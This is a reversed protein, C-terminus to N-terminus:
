ARREEELIRVEVPERLTMEGPLVECDYALIKVGKASAERLVEGFTPHTEVNPTFYRVQKMQIVFLVYAEYGEDICAMLERIHKVGRETPADPFRVVGDEELTVGKVELFIRREPTELYFDFRSTGFTTEPRILSAQPFIQPLAEAAVKNPAQSDINVVRNGKKVAVLDWKTKRSPNSGEALYVTVGPILLERCRGTNKVHCVVTEGDLRVYAIFRNPRDQFIGERVTEYKM